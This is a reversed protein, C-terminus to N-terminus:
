DGPVDLACRFGPGGCTSWGTFEPPAGRRFACRAYENTFFWSGGRLVRQGGSAAASRHSSGPYPRLEDEVWEEANGAMHMVGFPSAGSPYTDVAVTTVGLAMAHDWVICNAEDFTNGWPWRRADIGRAAKEWEAETPLRKGVWLAYARADAWSVREVPHDSRDPPVSGAPWDAPPEHGTDAIFAAYAQNTVPYRDILYAPLDVLHAPGEIDFEASGMTFPGAPIQIMDDPAGAAARTAM